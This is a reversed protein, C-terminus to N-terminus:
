GAAEGDGPFKAVTSAGKERNQAQKLQDTLMRIHEDRQRAGVYLEGILQNQAAIHQQLQQIQQDEM